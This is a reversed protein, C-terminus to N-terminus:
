SRYLKDKVEIQNSLLLSDLLLKRQTELLLNNNRVLM